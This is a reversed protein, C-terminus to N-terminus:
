TAATLMPITKQAIALGLGTGRGVEKTTFLHDFIRTKVSEPMGRGVTRTVTQAASPLGWSVVSAVEGLRWDVSGLGM